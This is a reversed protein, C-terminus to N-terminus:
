PQNNKEFWGMIQPYLDAVTKGSPRTRYLDVLFKDFAEFQPFGRRKTMMRDVNAIMLEQEAPPVYDVIRLSVLAWNM